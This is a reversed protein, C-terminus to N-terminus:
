LEYSISFPQLLKKKKLLDNPKTWKNFLNQGLRLGHEQIITNLFISAICKLSGHRVLPGNLV